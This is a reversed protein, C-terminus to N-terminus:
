RSSVNIMGGGYVYLKEIIYFIIAIVMLIACAQFMIMVISTYNAVNVYWSLGALPRLICLVIMVFVWLTYSLRQEHLIKITVVSLVFTILLISIFIIFPPVDNVVVWVFLENMENSIIHDKGHAFYYTFFADLATGIPLLICLVKEWATLKM